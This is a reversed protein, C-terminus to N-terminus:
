CRTSCVPRRIRCSPISWSSWVIARSQPRALRSAFRSRCTTRSSRPSIPMSRPPTACPRAPRRCLALSAASLPCFAWTSCAISKTSFSCRSQALTSRVAAFSTRLGARRPSSSVRDAISSISSTTRPSVAASWFPTMSPRRSWSATPRLSRCPSSVRPCCFSRAFPVANAGHPRCPPRM